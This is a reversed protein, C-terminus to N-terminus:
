RQPGEDVEKIWGAAVVKWSLRRGGVYARARAAYDSLAEDPLNYDTGHHQNLFDRLDRADSQRPQMSSM